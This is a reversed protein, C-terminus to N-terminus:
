YRPSQLPSTTNSTPPSGFAAISLRSLSNRNAKTLFAMDAPASSRNAAKKMSKRIQSRPRVQIEPPSTATIAPNPSSTPSPTSEEDAGSWNGMYQSHKDFHVGVKHVKSKTGSFKWKTVKAKSKKSGENNRGM